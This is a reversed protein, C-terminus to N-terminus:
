QLLYHYKNQVIENYSKNMLGFFKTGCMIKWGCELM